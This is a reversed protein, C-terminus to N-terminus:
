FSSSIRNGGGNIEKEFQEKVLINTGDTSHNDVLIIKQPQISQNLLSNISKKLKEKRNYTVVVPIYKEVM